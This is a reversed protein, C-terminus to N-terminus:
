KKCKKINNITLITGKESTITKHESFNFQWEKKAEKIENEYNEGKPIIIKKSIILQKECLNLIKYLPAFARCVFIADKIPEINEIRENFIIIENNSLKAAEKLFNTKKTKSEVLYVKEVGCISLIIGPIG